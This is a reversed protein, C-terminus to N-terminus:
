ETFMDVIKQGLRLNLTDNKFLHESTSPLSFESKKLTNKFPQYQGEDIKFFLGRDNKDIYIYSASPKYFNRELTTVAWLSSEILSANFATENAFDFYIKAIPIRNKYDFYNTTEFKIIRDHIQEISHMIMIKSKLNLGKLRAMRRNTQECLM